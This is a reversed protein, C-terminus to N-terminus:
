VCKYTIYFQMLEYKGKSTEYGLVAYPGLSM